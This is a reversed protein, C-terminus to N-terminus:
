KGAIGEVGGWYSWDWTCAARCATDLRLETVDAPVDVDMTQEGRDGQNRVPDLCREALGASPSRVIFCVGDTNGGGSWSGDRLGFFLRLTSGPQVPLRLSAPAHAFVGEAAPELTPPRMDNNRLLPIVRGAKAQMDRVFQNQNAARLPAANVATFRIALARDYFLGAKIGTRVTFSTAHKLNAADANGTSVILYDSASAVHPSLLMGDAAMGPILRYTGSSGDSYHVAIETMPPRYVLDVLRGLFTPRIDISVMWAGDPAPFAVEDGFSATKEVAPALVDAIPTARRKLILGLPSSQVAEYRSFFLPWLAGEASAPHRGDISGPQMILYDPASEDAFFARNRAILRPSYTSYEQITPRPRYALGNAIVASQASPIIDVTGDLPPLPTQAKIAALAAKNRAELNALWVSPRMILEAATKVESVIASPMNLIGSFPVIRYADYVLAHGPLVLIAALVMLRRVTARSLGLGADLSSLVAIVLAAWTAISHLRVMGAKFSVFLFACIVLWRALPLWLGYKRRNSWVAHFLIGAFLSAIGLWALREGLSRAVTRSMASSYGGSVEFSAALFAALQSLPQGSAAFGGVLGLALVIMHLPRRRCAVARVDLVLTAFVAVPLTSFKALIILGSLFVGCWTLITRSRCPDGLGVLGTLLPVLFLINNNDMVTLSLVLCVMVVNLAHGRDALLRSWAAAIVIVILLSVIALPYASVVSFQRTYLSSLPGGTFVVDTGFLLGRELGYALAAQWSPDLGRALPHFDLPDMKQYFVLFLAFCAAASWGIGPAKVGMGHM